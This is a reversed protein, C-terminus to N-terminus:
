PYSTNSCIIRTTNGPPHSLFLIVPQRRLWGALGDARSRILRDQALGRRLRPTGPRNAGGDRGAPARCGRAGCRLDPPGRRHRRRARLDAARGQGKQRAAHPRAPDALHRRVRDTEEPSCFGLQASLEFAMVMGIAVAEGHLLEDGYGCEAELAHGFTHGLNLLARAGAEREDDAVIAAKMACAHTIARRVATPDGDVVLHGHGELWQFFAADGLLGYKVVEAYGALLQRRPLTSLVGTDALVLRPQHFVGVLNKGQPTNIGTKGGVSSDVQALLTTPVQVFDIGRLLIAAAFGALDGIVGGGLAVLTTQRELRAELIRGCLQALHDFDKTAEGAPVVFAEIEIGADSLARELAALYLEAVTSDTVIFCRPQRLVPKLHAGATAILNEGVLIEYSRPGLDVRLRELENLPWEM